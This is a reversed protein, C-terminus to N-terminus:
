NELAFKVCEPCKLSTTIELSFTSAKEKSTSKASFTKLLLFEGQIKYNGTQKYYYYLANNNKYVTKVSKFGAAQIEKRYLSYFDVDNFEIEITNDSNYIEHLNPSGFITVFYKLTKVGVKKTFSYKMKGSAIQGDKPETTTYLEYGNTLLVEQISDSSETRISLLKELPIHQGFSLSPILSILVIFIHKM